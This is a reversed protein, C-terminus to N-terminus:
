HFSPLEALLKRYVVLQVKNNCNRCRPMEGDVRTKNDNLRVIVTMRDLSLEDIDGKVFQDHILGIFFEIESIHCRYHLFPLFITLLSHQALTYRFLQLM